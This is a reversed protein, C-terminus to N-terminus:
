IVVYTYEPAHSFRTPRALSLTSPQAQLVADANGKFDHAIVNLAPNTYRASAAYGRGLVYEEDASSVM